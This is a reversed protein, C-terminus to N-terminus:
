PTVQTAHNNAFVNTGNLDAYASTFYRITNLRFVNEASGESTVIGTGFRALLNRTVRDDHPGAPDGGPAPNYCIGLLGHQGARAENGVIRNGYSGGGRVFIGLNIRSMENDAIENMASNILMIGIQPPNGAGPDATEDGGRIDLGALRCRSANLLVAGMGFTEIRGGVVRVDEAGEIVIARGLKNGPGSLRHEGLWLRVHSARIVIGDGQSVSFGDTLRYTGPSTIVAPGSIPQANRVEDPESAADNSARGRDAVAASGAAVTGVEDPALVHRSKGCGAIAAAAVVLAALATTWLIRTSM